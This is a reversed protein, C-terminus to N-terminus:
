SALKFCHAKCTFSWHSACGSKLSFCVATHLSLVALGLCWGAVVANAISELVTTLSM